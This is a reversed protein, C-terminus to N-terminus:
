ELSLAICEFTPQKSEQHLHSLVREQQIRHQSALLRSPILILIFFHARLRSHHKEVLLCIHSPLKWDRCRFPARRFIMCIIFYM